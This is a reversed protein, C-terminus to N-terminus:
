LEGGVSIRPKDHCGVFGCAAQFDFFENDPISGGGAARLHPLAARCVLFTGTVHVAFMRNWDTLSTEEIPKYFAHGAANLVGDIRGFKAITAAIAAAVSAEDSVDCVLPLSREIKAAVVEARGRDLDAVAVSGGEAAYREATAAALGSGAGTAFLVKNKFRMAGGTPISCCEVIYVSPWKQMSSTSVAHGLSALVEQILRSDAAAGSAREFRRHYKAM